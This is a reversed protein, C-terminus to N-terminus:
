GHDHDIENGDVDVDYIRSRTAIGRQKRSEMNRTQSDERGCWVHKEHRSWADGLTGGADLLSLQESFCSGGEDTLLPVCSDEEKRM